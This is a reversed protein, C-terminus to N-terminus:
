FGRHLLLDACLHPDLFYIRGPTQSSSSDKGTELSGGVLDPGLRQRHLEEQLVPGPLVPQPQGPPLPGQLGGHTFEIRDKVRAEHLHQPPEDLFLQLQASKGKHEGTIM